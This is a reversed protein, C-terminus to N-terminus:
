EEDECDCAQERANLEDISKQQLDLRREREIEEQISEVDAQWKPMAINLRKHKTQVWCGIGDTWHADMKFHKGLEPCFTASRQDDQWESLTRWAKSCTFVALLIVCAFGAGSLAGKAPSM